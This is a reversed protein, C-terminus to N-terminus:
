GDGSLLRQLCSADADEAESTSTVTYTLVRLNRTTVAEYFILDLACDAGVFHWSLAPPVDDVRAPDGFLLRIESPDLGILKTPEPPAGILAEVDIIEGEGGNELDTDSEQTPQNSGPAQALAVSPQAVVFLACIALAGLCAPAWTVFNTCIPTKM